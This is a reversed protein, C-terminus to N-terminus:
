PLGGYIKFKFNYFNKHFNLISQFNTYLDENVQEIFGTLKMEILYTTKIYHCNLTESRYFIKNIKHLLFPISM